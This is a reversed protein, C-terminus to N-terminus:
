LGDCIKESYGKRLGICITRSDEEREQSLLSNTGFSVYVM